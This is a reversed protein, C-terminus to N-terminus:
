KLTGKTGVRFHYSSRVETHRRRARRCDQGVARGVVAKSIGGIDTRRKTKLLPTERRRVLGVSVERGANENLYEIDKRRRRRYGGRGDRDIERRKYGGVGRKNGVGAAIKTGEFRIKAKTPGAITAQGGAWGRVDDARHYTTPEAIDVDGKRRNRGKERRDKKVPM